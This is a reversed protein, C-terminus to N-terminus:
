FFSPTFNRKAGYKEAKRTTLSHKKEKGHINEL